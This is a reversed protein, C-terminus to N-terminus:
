HSISVTHSSSGPSRHMNCEFQVRQRQRGILERERQRYGEERTARYSNAALKLEDTGFKRDAELNTLISELGKHEDIFNVMTVFGNKTMVPHVDELSHDIGSPAFWRLLMVLQAQAPPSDEGDGGFRLGPVAKLINRLLKSNEIVRYTPDPPTRGWVLRALGLASTCGLDDCGLYAAAVDFLYGSELDLQPLAVDFVRGTM